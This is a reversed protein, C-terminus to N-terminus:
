GREIRVPIGKSAPTQSLEEHYWLPVLPNLEPFYGALTGGPLDYPVIKLGTVARRMDGERGDNDTALTVQDGEILDNARMDEPSMLVIMRSGSLGRLRDSHGYITTNFQDNSRLTVLHFRGDADGIGCANLVTPDTFEAKGSDTKWNREHAPNGRWFGGPENMRANMDHFEEPYTAAILDRIRSYDATWGDWDLKPNSGDLTAKALGCVIATESKLHPSAPRRSSRSGYIHSFSDEISVWQKGSAQEDEEARVLCPLIWSTKGPLCHTTNLRTAVHVTIDLDRWKEHVRAHDPVANALNGGLGVFGKQSGDLVGEVFHVTNHGDEQPTELDLLERYKEVPALKVKETIGVTRQGQVNSHGRIPSCGAGKRGINGGLLLLNVLMGISQSGHVHQTLGMGYIGMVNSSTAYVDGAQEMQFRSLGSATELEGWSTDTLTKLFAGIGNTHQEIFKLDLVRQRGLRQAEADRELVRKCVGMLAAIDGGPRVQCYLHDIRTPKGVTMQVPDQPSVFERLGKERLPNFVVIRCGREVVEQLTSLIRPSNTGPNQGLYFIADVHDFDEMQCTGVSSGTVKKLGVSTTEHCMNSSDPLNNHGYARAFVAYLYSPELAAKGSAYFTVSKPDLERLKAGIASFAEDWSTREYKDTDPNYRLPETLRGAKELRYDGWERLETVTRTEFFEPECRSTTLDWFTAKAGNECFEFAHPDEPKTWACSSCMYGGPKNQEKLTLTAGPGARASLEIRTMGRLSGWGGTPGDYGKPERGDEAM